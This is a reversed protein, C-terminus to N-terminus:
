QLLLCPCCLACVNPTYRDKLEINWEAEILEILSAPNFNIREYTESLWPRAYDICSHNLDLVM